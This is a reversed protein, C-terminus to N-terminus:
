LVETFPVVGYVTDITASISIRRTEGDFTADFELIDRVGRTERIRRKIALRASRQRRAGLAEERYPTGEAMDEFWEGRWLRLRTLVSQAVAEPTNVHFDGPGHGTSFDGDGDLRRYRM